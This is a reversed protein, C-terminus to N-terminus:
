VFGVCSFCGWHVINKDAKGEYGHNKAGSDDGGKGAGRFGVGLLCRIEIGGAASGENGAWVFCNGERNEGDFKEEGSVEGRLIERAADAEQFQIETWGKPANTRGSRSGFSTM